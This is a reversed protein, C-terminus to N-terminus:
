RDSTAGEGQVMFGRWLPSGLLATSSPLLHAADTKGHGDPCGFECGQVSTKRPVKRSPISCSDKPM